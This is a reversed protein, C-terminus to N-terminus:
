ALAKAKPADFETQTVTGSDLLGKATAIQETPSQSSTSAVGRIYREQETRQRSLGEMRRETM